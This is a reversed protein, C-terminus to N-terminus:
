HRRVYKRLRYPAQPRRQSMAQLPEHRRFREVDAVLASVEAYRQAPEDATAKAILADLEGARPLGQPSQRLPELMAGLTRGLSFIDTSATAPAGARQEPSAYRPTLAQLESNGRGELQAIGFDLLKACGQEDVLVNGPKIDCHVILRRHAHAVADCVMLFLALVGALSTGRQRVHEDIRQGDVHEMVLYPNGAPTTGGDLLRAIHPHNLSALVQREQALQALALPSSFGRLVKIASRQEYHGDSRRAEFVRGMGGEGLERVLTWAGLRDGPALEGGAASALMQSVPGSLHATHGDDHALLRLVAACEEPLAGLEALRARVQARDPLDCVEGFLAKLRAHDPESM